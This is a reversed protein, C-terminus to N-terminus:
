DADSLRGDLMVFRRRGRAGVTPDHTIVVLTIGTGNLQDFLDMIAHGNAQDLSGTPEDCLLVEPGGAIARAIAVRQKEGGSLHAPLANAKHPLGVRELAALARERRQRATAHSYIGALEVNERASRFPLLHFAQFIFGFAAARLGARRAQSIATTDTGAVRYVGSTPQDLLGIVNLLTSKGSGSPGMVTVYDGHEITLNIGRLARVPPDGPYTRVLSDLELLSM